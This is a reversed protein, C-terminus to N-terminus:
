PSPAGCCTTAVAAPVANCPVAVDQGPHCVEIPEAEKSCAEFEGADNEEGWEASCDVNICAGLGITFTWEPTELEIGGTTRGFIKVTVLVPRVEGVALSDRIQQVSANDLMLVSVVGQGDPGEPVFGSLPWSYDTTYGTVPDEVSVESDYIIVRSTETKPRNPDGQEVIENHVVLFAGYSQALLTDLSGEPIYVDSQPSAVCQEDAPIAYAIYLTSESDACASASLAGTVGVLGLAFARRLRQGVM